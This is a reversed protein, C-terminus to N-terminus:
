SHVRGGELPPPPPTVSTPRVVSAVGMEEESPYPPLFLSRFCLCWVGVGGIRLVGRLARRVGLVAFGMRRQRARVCALLLIFAKVKHCLVRVTQDGGEELNCSYRSGVFPIVEHAYLGNFIIFIGPM